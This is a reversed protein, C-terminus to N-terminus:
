FHHISRDVHELIKEVVVSRFKRILSFYLILFLVLHLHICIDKHTDSQCQESSYQFDSMLLERSFINMEIDFERGEFLNIEQFGFM